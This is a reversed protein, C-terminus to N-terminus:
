AADHRSGQHVLSTGAGTDPQSAALKVANHRIGIRGTYDLRHLMMGIGHKSLYEDVARRAGEWHGYDDIILVGGDALRPFLHEMEHRTSEYWDTDLRLLAIKEPAHGPITEEVMGEHFHVRSEDYGTQKMNAKVEDLASVCWVSKPDEKSEIKLLEEAVHGDVAVDKSTPESMGSFTDFLHLHRETDGFQALMNAVAMMSGGRWVGCEVIDGPIGASSVYRVAECLGHLRDVSTMTYDKVAVMTSVVDRQMDLPYRSPDNLERRRRQEKRQRKWQSFSRIM